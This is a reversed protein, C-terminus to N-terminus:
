QRVTRRYRRDARRVLLFGVNMIALGLGRELAVRRSMRPLLPPRITSCQPRQTSGATDTGAAGRNGGPDSAKLSWDKM